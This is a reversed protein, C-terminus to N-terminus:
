REKSIESVLWRYCGISGSSVPFRLLKDRMDLGVVRGASQITFMCREQTSWAVRYVRWFILVLLLLLGVLDSKLTCCSPM